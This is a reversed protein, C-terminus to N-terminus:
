PRFLYSQNKILLMLRMHKRPGIHGVWTCSCRLLRTTLLCVVRSKTCLPISRLVAERLLIVLVSPLLTRDKTPLSVFRQYLYALIHEM